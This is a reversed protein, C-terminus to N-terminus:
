DGGTEKLSRCAQWVKLPTAPMDLRAGAEGPIADAIANMVAALAGTTGAEGAGKIGLANTTCRTSHTAATIAPLTDARPMAYDMFSGTLLQGSGDYVADEILAQGVGQAVGGHVQGELITHDLVTGCDDVATYRVLDVMGTEPDIEVEAIHCGNPFSQPVEVGAQTDLSHKAAIEFLSVRRDTGAIEFYGRAYVLDSAAAELMEAAIPRAKEIVEEAARAIAVGSTMAGRSAVTGSGPVGLRTDGQQITVQEPPIGLREAALKRFVTRHGQGNSQAGLAVAV